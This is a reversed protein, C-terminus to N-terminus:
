CVRGIKLWFRNKSLEVTDAPVELLALYESFVNFITSPTSTRSRSISYVNTTRLRLGDKQMRKSTAKRKKVWHLAGLILSFIITGSVAVPVGFTVGPNNAKTRPSSLTSLDLTTSSNMAVTTNTSDGSTLLIWYRAYLIIFGFMQISWASRKVVFPWYWYKVWNNSRNIHGM